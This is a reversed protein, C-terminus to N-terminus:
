QWMWWIFDRETCKTVSGSIPYLREWLQCRTTKLFKIQWSDKERRVVMSKKANNKKKTGNQQYSRGSVNNKDRGTGSNEHLM